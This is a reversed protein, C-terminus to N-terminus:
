EKEQKHLYPSMEPDLNARYELLDDLECAKRFCQEGLKWEGLRSCVIARLYEVQASLPLEFLIERAAGNFGRSLLAVATNQDRYPMLLTSAEEYHRTRLLEVARQYVTDVVTTHITDKLM